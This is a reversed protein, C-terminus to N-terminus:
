GNFDESLREWNEGGDDSRFVAGDEADIIAWNRNEKAPSIALGITGLMGQPLGPKRTIETWSDGDDTSKFIGCGEGGSILTFPKRQAEWFPVYLIRPNNPDLALDIAGSTDSRFLIQEWTKGGDVSRYLGREPNPGHAHGLAAYWSLNLSFKTTYARILM